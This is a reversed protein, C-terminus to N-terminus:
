LHCRKLNTFIGVLSFIREIKIQSGIIGFIQHAFFGCNSISIETEGVVRFSM